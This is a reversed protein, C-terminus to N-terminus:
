FFFFSVIFSNNTSKPQFTEFYPNTESDKGFMNIFHKVNYNPTNSTSQIEHFNRQTEM